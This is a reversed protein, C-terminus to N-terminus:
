TEDGAKMDTLYALVEQGYETVKWPGIDGGDFTNAINTLGHRTLTALIPTTGRALNPLARMLSHLDWVGGPQSAEGAREVMAALTRVHPAELDDIATVMLWSRDLLADDGLGEALVHALARVKDEDLTNFAGRVAAATLALRRDDAAATAALEDDSWGGQQAAENALLQVNDVGRQDRATVLGFLPVVVAGVVSGLSGGVILGTVAGAAAAAMQGPIPSPRDDAM